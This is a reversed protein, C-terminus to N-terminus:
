YLAMFDPQSSNSFCLGNSYSSDWCSQPQTSAASATSTGHGGLVATGEPIARSQQQGEARSQKVWPDKCFVKGHPASISRPM